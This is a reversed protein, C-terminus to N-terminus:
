KKISTVLLAVLGVFGLFYLILSYAWAYEVCKGVVTCNLVYLSVPITILLVWMNSAFQKRYVILQTLILMLYGLAAVRTQLAIDM